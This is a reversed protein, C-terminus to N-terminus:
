WKATLIISLYICSEWFYPILMDWLNKCFWYMLTSVVGELAKPSVTYITWWYFCKQYYFMLSLINCCFGYTLSFFSYYAVIFGARPSEREVPEDSAYILRWSWWTQVRIIYSIGFDFLLRQSSLYILRSTAQYIISCYAMSLRKDDEQM